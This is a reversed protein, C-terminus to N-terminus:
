HNHLHHHSSNVINTKCELENCKEGDYELEITVHNVNNNKFIKRVYNKIDIIDDVLLNDEIIVHITAYNNISDMTWLHLHHIDKIHKNKLLAERISNSDIKHPAKELFVEFIGKLNKFVNVLIFTSILISLIPDLLPLNFIKMLISCVLVAAWGLVDELLHLSVVRQSIANGRATKYVGLGNIVLGVIALILLGDYNIEQPEILRPIANYIMIISGVLLITSNILAGLLSFRLYGYTYKSNPRKESKKDLIWSLGISAADGFDHISDSIISISNVYIGGVLEIISFILNLLFAFKINKKSESSM